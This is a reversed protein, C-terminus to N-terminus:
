ALGPRANVASFQLAIISKKLLCRWPLFISRWNSRANQEIIILASPEGDLAFDKPALHPLEFEQTLNVAVYQDPWGDLNFCQVLALRYCRESDLLHFLEAM